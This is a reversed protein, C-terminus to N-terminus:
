DTFQFQLRILTIVRFTTLAQFKQFLLQTTEKDSDRSAQINESEFM